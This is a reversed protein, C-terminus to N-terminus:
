GGLTHVETPNENALVKDLRGRLKEEIEYGPLIVAFRGDKIGAVM